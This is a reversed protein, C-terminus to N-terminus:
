KRELGLFPSNCVRLARFCTTKILSQASAEAIGTPLDARMKLFKMLILRVESSLSSVKNMQHYLIPGAMKLDLVVYTTYIPCVIM